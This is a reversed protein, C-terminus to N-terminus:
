VCGTFSVSFLFPTLPGGPGNNVTLRNCQDRHSVLTLSKSLRGRFGGARDLPKLTQGGTLTVSRLKGGYSSLM